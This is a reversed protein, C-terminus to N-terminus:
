GEQQNANANEGRIMAAAKEAIMLTAANTNSNVIRPMISADVVRLGAIGRVRLQPDVVAQEDVGMRCTGVPHFVTQVQSLLYADIEEQSTASQRPDIEAGRYSAFAPQFVADRAIRLGARLVNWDHETDLFNPDIGPAAHPDASKLFVSGRSTPLSIQFNAMFGHGPEIVRGM